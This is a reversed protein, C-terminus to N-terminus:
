VESIDKNNKAEYFFAGVRAVTIAIYVVICVCNGAAPGIVCHWRQDHNEDLGTNRHCVGSLACRQCLTQVSTM